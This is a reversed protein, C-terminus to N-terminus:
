PLDSMPVFAYAARESADHHLRRWIHANDILAKLTDKQARVSRLWDDYDAQSMAALDGITLQFIPNKLPFGLLVGLFKEIPIDASIPEAVNVTASVTQIGRIITTVDRNGPDGADELQLQLFDLMSTFSLLQGKTIFLHPIFVRDGDSDFETAYRSEFQFGGETDTTVAGLIDLVPWPFDAATTGSPM